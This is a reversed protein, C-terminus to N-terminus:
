RKSQKKRSNKHKGGNYTKIKRVSVNGNKKKNRSNNKSGGSQQSCVVDEMKLKHLVHEM